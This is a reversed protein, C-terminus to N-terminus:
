QLLLRPIQDADRVGDSVLNLFLLHGSVSVLHLLDLLYHEIHAENVIEGRLDGLLHLM